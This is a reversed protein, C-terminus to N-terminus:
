RGADRCPGHGGGSRGGTGRELSAISDLRVLEGSGSRVYIKNLDEPVQFTGDVAKVRLNYRQGTGPVDHYRAVNVGGMLANASEAIQQASIGLSRARHRDVVLNLQPLDLQMELDVTGIADDAELRALLEHSLENVRDLEPGSLVFQLPEGREGGLFPIDSAFAQVGPLEDLRPQLRRMIEQQSADRDARDQLTVFIVGASIQGDRGLGIASFHGAISEEADLVGEIGALRSSTYDLSSGLPAQFSITFQGTDERPAFEADLSAAPALAAVIVLAVAGLVLWRSKLTYDLLSRYGNQLRMQANELFAYVRGHEEEVQLFRSCLMPVLTLAVLSSALVGFTVVVAFSEFFRGIIADLFVRALPKGIWASILIALALIGPIMAEKVAIYSAPLKLLGIGGSIAISILGLIPVWGVKRTKAMEWVGYAFPFALALLLANMAGLKDDGAYRMMIVTPILINIALSIM